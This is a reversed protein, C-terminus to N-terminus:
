SALDAESTFADAYFVAADLGCHDVFDKQASEVMIPAGCVYAEWGSLDPLDHMVAHHVYGTRGQWQDQELADSVVPIFSFQPMTQEWQLAVDMLYLDKPRRGGWYLRIERQINQAQMHEIIAKIPAFGTGSAVFVIPKTSEERLFFSGMPAETRLMAREKLAPETAGFVYDTFVGGPMHRLHLEVQNNEQPPNAMSYSRRKGDKLIVELYQGPYYNFPQSPPLQVVLRMVDDNLQDLELVRAPLKRVHIDTVLRAQPSEIRMDTKPHAQCMLTYGQDLDSQELIHQPAEGAEYDGQLVKGKCTSCGGGRCSYPLMIEAELAADLVTQGDKVEFSYGAPEVIVKFSMKHNRLRLCRM